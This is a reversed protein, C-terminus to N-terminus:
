DRVSRLSNIIFTEDGNGPPVM